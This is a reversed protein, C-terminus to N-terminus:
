EGSGAARIAGMAQGRDGAGFVASGAVLIEAGAAAARGATPDIGGAIELRFARGVTRRGEVRIRDHRLRGL